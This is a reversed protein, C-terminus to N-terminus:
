RHSYLHNAHGVHTKRAAFILRYHMHNSNSHHYVIVTSPLQISLLMLALRVQVSCCWHAAATCNADTRVAAAGRGIDGRLLTLAEDLLRYLDRIWPVHSTIAAVGIIIDDANSNATSAFSHTSSLRAKMRSVSAQLRRGQSKPKESSPIDKVSPNTSRRRPVVAEQVAHPKHPHLRYVYCCYCDVASAPDFYDDSQAM